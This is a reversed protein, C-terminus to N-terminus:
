LKWVEFGFKPKDFRRQVGVDNTDIKKLREVTVNISAESNDCAFWKRGLKEAVTITLGSGSFFDAVTDGEDSACKIIRELLTEPKQTDTWWDNMVPGKSNLGYNQERKRKTIGRQKTGESYESYQRNFKYKKTKSYFLITDHNKAFNTKPIGATVYCWVIENRFNRYGFVKDLECKVYHSAHWDLHVFISGTSKLLRKMEWFRVNLWALYIPLKGSFFPPEIYILDLSEDPLSRMVDLNNGWILNNKFILGSGFDHQELREM